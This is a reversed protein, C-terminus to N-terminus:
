KGGGTNDQLLEPFQRLYSTVALALLGVFGLAVLVDTFGLPLSTAHHHYAPGILLHHELWMGSIVVTCIVIMAKPITKIKKNLLILFPAVFCVIFVTWAVNNWPYLMTREIIYATEESINGYWIVVFQAYFFDAWVLCFGFFLKGMDHFQSSKLSFPTQPSMHLIAALIILAGFGVYIAKAFNYAGFLTSYWHSDMSMILDYGILSLILAFSLMYLYAYVTMRHKFKEADPPNNRWRTFLFNRVKGRTGNDKLKFWLAHYLYLLGFGYLLILGILDRFFLFPVNLWIEKGHLDKGLWPFVHDQGIFLIVFMVLSVPFFASFAEALSALPGSWRAKVAHMLTSFLMGGQAMASVLLFGILYAQWAQRPHQGSAQFIFAIAGVAVLSSFIIMLPSTKEPESM